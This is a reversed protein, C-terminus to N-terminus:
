PPRPWAVPSSRIDCSSEEPDFLPPSRVAAPPGEDGRGEEGMGGGGQRPSSPSFCSRREQAGERGPLPPHLAPLSPTPPTLADGNGVSKACDQHPFESRM